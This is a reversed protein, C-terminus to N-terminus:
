LVTINDLSVNGVLVVTKISHRQLTEWPIGGEGSKIHYVRGQNCSLSASNNLSSSSSSKSVQSQLDEESEQNTNNDAM